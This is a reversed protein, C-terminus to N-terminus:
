NFRSFAFCLAASDKPRTDSSPPPVRGSAVAYAHGQDMRSCGGDVLIIVCGVVCLM